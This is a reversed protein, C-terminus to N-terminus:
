HRFIRHYDDTEDITFVTELVARKGPAKYIWIGNKIKRKAKSSNWNIRTKDEKQM